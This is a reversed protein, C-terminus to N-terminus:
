RTGLTREVWMVAAAVTDVVTHVAAGPPAPPRDILLVPIGAQRAATLKAATADGGSDKTVLVDVRHAALLVREGGVTFPGRDLLIERHVPLPDDPPDISRILFWCADRSAFFALDRRGITLFARAGDALSGAAEAASAVRQWRDGPGPQWGPRRIALLPVRADAAAAVAAASMAAAFPHTADVVADIREARLWQALGSTGGFGGIRVTGAPRLPDALRGALSSVVELGPRGALAAALARGEGTGGLILLRTM